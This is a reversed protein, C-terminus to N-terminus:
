QDKSIQLHAMTTHYPREPQLTPGSNFSRTLLRPEIRRGQCSCHYVRLYTGLGIPLPDCDVVVLLYDIQDLSFQSNYLGILYKSYMNPYWKMPAACYTRKSHDNCSLDRGRERENERASQYWIELNSWQYLKHVQKLLGLSNAINLATAWVAEHRSTDIILWMDVDICM